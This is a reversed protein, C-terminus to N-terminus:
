ESSLLPTRDESRQRPFTTRRTPTMVPEPRSINSSHTPWESLEIGADSGPGPRIPPEAGSSNAHSRHSSSGANEVHQVAAGAAGKSPIINVAAGAAAPIFTAITGDSRAVNDSRVRFFQLNSTGDDKQWYVRSAAHYRWLLLAPVLIVQLLIGVILIWMYSGGKLGRLLIDKANLQEPLALGAQGWQTYCECRNYYGLQTAVIWGVTCFTAVLDKFATVQFWRNEPLWRAVSLTAIYSGLWGFGFYLQGWTRCSAGIPPVFISILTGTMIALVVIFVPLAWYIIPWVGTLGKRLDRLRGTRKEMHELEKDANNRATRFRQKRSPQWTYIGGHIRRAKADSEDFKREPLDLIIGANSLDKRFRELIRPIAEATQSSGVVSTMVVASILWFYLASFGISHIEVNMFITSPVQEGESGIRYIAIGFVLIFLVEAVIVPLFRTARDAALAGGTTLCM